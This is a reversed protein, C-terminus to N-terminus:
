NNRAIECRRIGRHWKGATTRKPTAPNQSSALKRVPFWESDGFHGGEGGRLAQSSLYESSVVDFNLFRVEM